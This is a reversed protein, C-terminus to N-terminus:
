IVLHYLWWRDGIVTSVPGSIIYPSFNVYGCNLRPVLKSVDFV